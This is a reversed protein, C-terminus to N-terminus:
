KYKYVVLSAAHLRSLTARDEEDCTEPHSATKRSLTHYTHLMMANASDAM